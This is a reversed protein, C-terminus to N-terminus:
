ARTRDRQSREPPTHRPTIRRTTLPNLRLTPQEQVLAQVPEPLPRLGDSTPHEDPPKNGTNGPYRHGHLNTDTRLENRGMEDDSADCGMGSAGRGARKRYWHHGAKPGTHALHLHSSRSHISRDRGTRPHETIRSRSRIHSPRRTNREPEPDQRSKNERSDYRNV